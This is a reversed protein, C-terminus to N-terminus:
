TSSHNAQRVHRLLVDLEKQWILNTRELDKQIQEAWADLSSLTRIDGDPFDVFYKSLDLKSLKDCQKVIGPFGAFNLRIRVLLPHLERLVDDLKEAKTLDKARWFKLQDKTDEVEYADVRETSIIARRKEYYGHKMWAFAWGWRAELLLYRMAQLEGELIERTLAHKRKAALRDQMYVGCLAAVGGVLAGTVGSIASLIIGSNM